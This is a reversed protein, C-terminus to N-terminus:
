FSFQAFNIRAQAAIVGIEDFATQALEKQGAIAAPSLKEGQRRFRDVRHAMFKNQVGLSLFVLALECQAIKQMVGGGDIREAFFGVAIVAPPAGLVPGAAVLRNIRTM